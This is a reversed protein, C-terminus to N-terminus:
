PEYTMDPDSKAVIEARILREFYGRWFTSIQRLTGDDRPLMMSMDPYEQCACPLKLLEETDTTESFQKIWLLAKKAAKVDKWTLPIEDEEQHSGFSNGTMYTIKITYEDAM